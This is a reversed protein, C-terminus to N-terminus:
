YHDRFVKPSFGTRKKFEASFYLQNSYGLIQSIEKISHQNYILLDKAHNMKLKIFYDIPSSQLYQRFIRQLASASMGSQRCLDAMCLSGAINRRMFDLIGNLEQPHHKSQFDDALELLVQYLLGNIEYQYGPPMEKVLKYAHDFKERLREPHSPVIKDAQDLGLQNVLPLVSSGIVLMVKKLAYDTTEFIYDEGYHILFVENEGVEYRKGKHSYIFTGEQVFEISFIDSNIRHRYCGAVWEDNGVAQLQLPISVNHINGFYSIAFQHLPYQGVNYGTM